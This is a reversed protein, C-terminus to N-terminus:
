GRRVGVLAMGRVVSTPLHLPTPSFFLSCALDDKFKEKRPAVHQGRQMADRKCIMLRLLPVPFLPGYARPGNMAVAEGGKTARPWAHIVNMIKYPQMEPGFNASPIGIMTGLRRLACACDARLNTPPTCTHLTRTFASDILVTM